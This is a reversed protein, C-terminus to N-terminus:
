IIDALSTDPHLNHQPSPPDKLISPVPQCPPHWPFLHLSSVESHLHQSLPQGPHQPFSYSEVCRTHLSVITPNGTVLRCRPAPTAQAAGVQPHVEASGPMVGADWGRVWWVCCWGGTCDLNM